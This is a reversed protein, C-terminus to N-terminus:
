KGKNIQKVQEQLQKIEDKVWSKFDGAELEMIIRRFTKRSAFLDLNKDVINIIELVEQHSLNDPDVSLSSGQGEMSGEGLVLWNLSISPFVELTKLIIEDKVSRHNDLASSFNGNSMGLKREFEKPSLGNHERIKDLRHITKEIM